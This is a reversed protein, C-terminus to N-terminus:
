TCEELIVLLVSDAPAYFQYLFDPLVSVTRAEIPILEMEDPSWRHNDDIRWACLKRVGPQLNAFSTTV